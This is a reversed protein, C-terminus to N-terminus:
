GVVASAMTTSSYDLTIEKTETRHGISLYLKCKSVGLKNTEFVQFGDLPINGLNGDVKGNWWEVWGSPQADNLVYEKLGFTRKYKAPFIFAHNGGKDFMNMSQQYDITYDKVNGNTVEAGTVPHQDILTLPSELFEIGFTDTLKSITTSLGIYEVM